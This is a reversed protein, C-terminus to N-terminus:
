GIRQFSEKHQNKVTYMMEDARKVADEFSETDPEFITYGVSVTPMRSDHQRLSNIRKLYKENIADVLGVGKTMVVCFEDGGFRYCHGYKDFALRLERSISILCEDGFAHGYTDNISKFRDVDIFIIASRRDLYDVACDFSRRNLVGTLSDVQQVLQCYYVYFMIASFSICTWDLRLVPSSVQLIMALMVLVNITALFGANRYQYKRSFRLCEIYLVTAEIVYTLVYVVYLPGRSYINAADVSFIIGTPLSILQLVIDLMPPLLVWIRKRIDSIIALCSLPILPTLSFEILKSVIHIFRFGDYGDLMSALWETLNTAILLGFLVQFYRRRSPPILSNGRIGLIMFLMSLASIGVIATYYSLFGRRRQM